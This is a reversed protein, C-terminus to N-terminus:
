EGDEGGHQPTDGAQWEEVAKNAAEKGKAAASEKPMGFLIWHKTAKHYARSYINARGMKPATAMAVKMVKMAKM